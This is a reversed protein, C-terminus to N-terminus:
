NTLLDKQLVKYSYWLQAQAPLFFRCYRTHRHYITHYLVELTVGACGEVIHQRVMLILTCDGPHRAMYQGEPPCSASYQHWVSYQQPELIANSYKTCQEPQMLSRGTQKAASPLTIKSVLIYTCM